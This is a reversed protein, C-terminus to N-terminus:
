PRQMNLLLGGARIRGIVEGKLHFYRSQPDWWWEAADTLTLDITPPLVLRWGLFVNLAVDIVCTELQEGYVNVRVDKNVRVGAQGIEKGLRDAFALDELEEWATTVLLRGGLIMRLSAFFGRHLDEYESIMRLIQPDLAELGPGGAERKEFPVVALFADLSLGRARELYRSACRHSLALDERM